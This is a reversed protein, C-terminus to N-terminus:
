SFLRAELSQLGALSQAVARHGIEFYAIMTDTLRRSEM